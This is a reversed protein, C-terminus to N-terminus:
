GSAGLDDADRRWGYGITGVALPAFFLLAGPFADPRLYALVIAASRALALEDADM